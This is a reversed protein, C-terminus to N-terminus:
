NLTALLMEKIAPLDVGQGAMEIVKTTINGASYELGYPRYFEVLFRKRSERKSDRGNMLDRIFGIVEETNNAVELCDSNFLHQYHVAERQTIRYREVLLTIGPKGFALADLMGSTNIGVTCVSYYLSDFFDQFSTQDDPFSGGQPWVALNARSLRGLGAANSPHPRVLINMGKLREDHSSLLKDALEDVIWSEDKAINQSSGLYLVFPKAADLGVRECFDNYPTPKLQHDLWKDFMAAGTLILKESPIDLKLADQLHTENWVVMIDPIIKFVGKTTINDWSLVSIVTPIGLAKGAKIYEEEQSWWLNVPSGVIVDPRNEELWQTVERYPPVIKEFGILLGQSFSTALLKRVVGMRLFFQMFKPFHNEVRFLYFPSQEPYNLYRIYNRLERFGMIPLSFLGKHSILYGSTFNERGQAFNRVPLDSTNGDCWKKDFIATVHHDADCMERM